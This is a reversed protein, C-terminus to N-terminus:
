NGRIFDQATIGASFPLPTGSPTERFASPDTLAGMTSGLWKLRSEIGKTVNEDTIKISIRRLRTGPGFAAELNDPDVEEISSPDALDRFCAFYPYNSTLGGAAEVMRPITYEQKGIDTPNRLDPAIDKFAWAAWDPNSRSRLLVFLSRGGPLDVIVAEGVVSYGASAQTGFVQKSGQWWRVQIVGEGSRVGEPTDVDVKLKYRFPRSRSQSHDGCASLIGGLALAAVVERRKM